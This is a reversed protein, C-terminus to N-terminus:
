SSAIDAVDERDGRMVVGREEDRSTGRTMMVGQVGRRGTEVRWM